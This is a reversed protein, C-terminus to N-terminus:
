ESDVGVFSELHKNIERYLLRDATGYQEEAEKLLKDLDLAAVVPFVYQVSERRINVLNVMERVDDVITDNCRNDRFVVVFKM